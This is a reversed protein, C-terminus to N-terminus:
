KKEPYYFDTVALYAPKPRYEEDFLLPWDLRGYGTLWTLDDALGWVTVGTVIGYGEAKPKSYERCVRFIEGYMAAQVTELSEPLEAYSEQTLTTYVSIDLETVQVDLGLATFAEVSDKFDSLSSSVNYHAQMGIGDIPINEERFEELMKLLANRKSPINLGYDNYYLKVDLGLEKRARDAALFAEKIYNSGCVAYWDGCNQGNTESGTRYFDGADVQAQTPYDRLAENVVDWCYTREGYHKMVEYVHTDIRELAQEKTTGEALVWSPLAKYWVLAHGRVKKDHSEAWDVVSDALEFSFRGESPQLMDWKMEYEMTISNFNKLLEDYMEVNANTVAAGVPFYDAYIDKLLVEGEEAKGCATGAGLFLCGLLLAAARKLIKKM